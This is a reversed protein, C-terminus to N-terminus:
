HITIETIFKMENYIVDLKYIPGKAVFKAFPFNIIVEVNSMSDNFFFISNLIYKMVIGQVLKDTNDDHHFGSFLNWRIILIGQTTSHFAENVGAFSVNQFAGKVTM